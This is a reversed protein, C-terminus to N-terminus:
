SWKKILMSYIKDSYKTLINEKEMEKWELKRKKKKDKM